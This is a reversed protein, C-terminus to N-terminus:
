NKYPREGVEQHQCWAETAAYHTQLAVLLFAEVPLCFVSIESTQDWFEAQNSKLDLDYVLGFINSIFQDNSM